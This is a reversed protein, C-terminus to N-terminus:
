AATIEVTRGRAARTKPLHVTLVGDAFEARVNDPNVTRPLTFSREFAGYSREILRASGQKEETEAKKEGRLHIMGDTIEVRVDDLKMGPLEATLRLEGDHEVVDVSPSWGIGEAGDDFLQEIAQGLRTSVEPFAPWIAQSRRPRYRVLAM